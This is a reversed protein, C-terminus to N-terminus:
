IVDYIWENVLQLTSAYFVITLCCALACCVQLWNSSGWWWRLTSLEWTYLIFACLDFHLTYFVSGPLDCRMVGWGFHRFWSVFCQVWAEWLSSLYGVVFSFSKYLGSAVSVRFRPCSLSFLLSRLFVSYVKVLARLNGWLFFVFRSLCHVLDVMRSLVESHTHVGSTCVFKACLWSLYLFWMLHWCGRCLFSQQSIITSVCCRCEFILLIDHHKKCPWFSTLLLLSGELTYKDHLHSKSMNELFSIWWRLSM